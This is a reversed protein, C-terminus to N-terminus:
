APRFSFDKAPLPGRNIRDASRRARLVADRGHHQLVFLGLTVGPAAIRRAGASRKVMDDELDLMRTNADGPRTRGDFDPPRKDMRLNEVTIPPATKQNAGM